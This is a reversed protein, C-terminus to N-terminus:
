NSWCFSFCAGSITYLIGSFKITEWFIIFSFIMCRKTFHNAGQTVPRSDFWLYLKDYWVILLNRRSTWTEHHVSYAIVIKGKICTWKYIYMFSKIVFKMMQHNQLLLFDIWTEILLKCSRCICIHAHINLHCILIYM